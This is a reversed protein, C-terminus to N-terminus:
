EGMLKRAQAIAAEMVPDRGKLIDERTPRVLVDPTVGLGPEFASVELYQRYFPVRVRIASEPLTVFFLTGATPGEVSGGTPEGVIVADARLDQLKGLMMTVGSANAASSLIVLPGTFAAPSPEITQFALQDQSPNERYWGPREETFRAPDPTLASPDWTQIVDSFRTLDLSRVYRARIQRFPKDVLHALLALMADDSGGGNRRTDLILAKVGEDRLREFLPGYVTRPDMPRRYNVFTDVRLLAVDPARESDFTVADVFDARYGAGPFPLARWAEFDIPLVIVNRDAGNAGRVRVTKEAWPGNMLWYFHEFASGLFEGSAELAPERAWVTKGDVPILPRIADFVAGTPAGDIAILTEGVQLGGAGEGVATVLAEGEVLQFRFPFFSPVSLRKRDLARPTEAKTHDCNIRALVASLALYVQATTMPGEAARAELDDWAADLAARPTYRDYGPHIAELASRAVALDGRLQAPTLPEAAVARPLVGSWNSVFAMLTLVALVRLGM